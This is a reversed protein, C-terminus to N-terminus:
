SRIPTGARRYKGDMYSLGSSGPEDEREEGVIELVRAIVLVHDGVRIFGAGDAHTVEELEQRAGKIESWLPQELQMSVGSPLVECRLVKRVGRGKLLPLVAEGEVVGEVVFVKDNEQAGGGFIDGGKTFLDAIQAGKINDDLVHLLFHRSLQLASLTRSPTSDNTRINFSIIPEPSLSLSTFSSLTMGHHQPESHSHNTTLVVIPAPLDRMLHRVSKSIDSSAPVDLPVPTATSTGTVQDGDSTLSSVGSSPTFTATTTNSEGRKSSSSRPEDGVIEEHIEETVPSRPHWWFISARGVGGKTRLVAGLSRRPILFRQNRRPLNHM